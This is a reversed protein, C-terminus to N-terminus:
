NRLGSVGWDILSFQSKRRIVIRNYSKPLIAQGIFYRDGKEKFVISYFEVIKNKYVGIVHNNVDSTKFSAQSFLDGRNPIMLWGFDPNYFFGNKLAFETIKSDVTQYSVTAQDIIDLRWEGNEQIVTWYETFTANDSYLEKQLETDYLVDHAKGVVEVKYVAIADTSLYKTKDVYVSILKVDTIKNERKENKLVALELVLQNYFRTSTIKQLTTVDFESWAKQFQFYIEETKAAFIPEQTEKRKKYGVYKIYLLFIFVFIIVGFFIFQNTPDTLSCGQEKNSRTGSFCTGDSIPTNLASGDGSSFSGGGGSGGGGGRAFVTGHSIILVILCVFLLTAILKFISQM